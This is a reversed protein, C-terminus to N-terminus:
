NQIPTLFKKQPVQASYELVEAGCFPCAGWYDVVHNKVDVDWTQTKIKVEKKCAYCRISFTRSSSQVRM